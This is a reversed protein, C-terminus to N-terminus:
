KDGARASPNQARRMAKEISRMSGKKREERLCNVRGPKSEM